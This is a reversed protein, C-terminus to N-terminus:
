CLRTDLDCEHVYQSFFAQKVVVVVVVVVVAAAAAAAAVVKIEEYQRNTWSPTVIM